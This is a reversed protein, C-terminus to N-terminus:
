SKELLLYRALDSIRSVSHLVPDGLNTTQVLPPPQTTVKFLRREGNRLAFHSGRSKISNPQSRLIGRRVCDASLNLADCIAQFSFPYDATDDFLWDEVERRLRSSTLMKKRYTHIAEELVALTLRREPELSAKGRLTEWYRAPLAVDEQWFGEETM